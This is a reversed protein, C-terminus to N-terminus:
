RWLEGWVRNCLDQAYEYSFDPAQLLIENQSALTSSYESLPYVTVGGFGSTVHACLAEVGYEKIIVKGDEDRGVTIDAMGGVMRNEVGSGTGSTWNVFNGLSYYVLMEHGTEENRLLEIPEIVHPHTGIVLDVENELFLKTWKKQYSDTSLLYETGWHPCVIVFDAIEKARAIDSVVKDEELLNVAYPMDQPLAIGNTGYTYNLIAICIGSEEITLISNYDEEKNYIGTVSIKPYNTQWNELCNLLGKKGKDLAHNSAHLIVDFGTDALYGSLEFPANFAPYGSVGLESGGIIVEQNVLAIDAAEIEEKMNAFVASYDYTGDELCASKEVPTHLLIDGVMVITVEQSEQLEESEEQINEETETKIEVNEQLSETTERSNETNDQFTENNERLTETTEWFIESTQEAFSTIEEEAIATEKQRATTCGASLPLLMMMCSLWLYTKKM